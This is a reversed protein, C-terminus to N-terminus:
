LGAERVLADISARPLRGSRAISRCADRDVEIVCLPDHAFVRRFARPWRGCLSDARELARPGRVVAYLPVPCDALAEFATADLTDGGTLARAAHWRAAMTARDYGWQRAYALRGFFARRPGLVLLPVHHDLDVFAAERPTNARAWLTLADDGPLTRSFPTGKWAVAMPLANAPLICAVVWAVALRRRDEWLRAFAIGGLIALPLYAFYVPKDYTNTGPLRLTCAIVVGAGTVLVFYRAAVGRACRGIGLWALPVVAACGLAVGLVQRPDLGLPAGSSERAALIPALMPAVALVALVGGAIPEVACRPGRERAAVLAGIGVAAFAPIAVVTHFASVGALMLAGAVATSRSPTRLWDIMAAWTGVLLAVALLFATAVMAKDLFIEPSWFSFMYHSVSVYDLHPMTFERALESAGRMEGTFARAVRLGFSLWFAGSLAFPVVFASAAAERRSGALARVVRWTAALLAAVAWLNIWAMVRFPDIAAAKSVLAVLAHYAWMYQLRFGAFYPDSPPAGFDTLEATVAGHFWGDSRMRWEADVEPQIGVLLVIALFLWLLPRIDRWSDRPSAEASAGDAPEGAPRRSPRLAAALAIAGVLPAPRAASPVPIGALFAAAAGLAVVVLSLGTACFTRWAADSGLRTWRALALGPALMLLVVACPVRLPAWPAYAGAAVLAPLALALAGRGPPNGRRRPRTSRNPADRQESRYRM